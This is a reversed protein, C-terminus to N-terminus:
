VNSQKQARLAPVLLIVSIIFLYIACKNILDFGGAELLISALAPGIAYGIFQLTVGFTVMRGKNDFDSLLAMLYPVTLNWLANFICVGIVFNIASPVDLLLGIGFGGGIIGIALPLARGYRKEFLIAISAGLLGAFQSVTLGNAVTQEAIGSEVGLVFMYVWVLGIATYYFLVGVLTILRTLITYKNETDTEAENAQHSCPLNGVFILGSLCFLGLFLLVGEVGVLNFATPMILLGLAGYGLVAVLMYGLNRDARSTLGMMIFSFVMLGGSGLGTVFRMIMLSNSDDMLLSLFNGAGSLILFLTLLVRWNFRNLIFNIGIATIAVGFMEASAILGAQEETYQMYEILGQVFAPQIIFMSPGIVAIVLIATITKVTNIDIITSRSGWYSSDTDTNSSFM